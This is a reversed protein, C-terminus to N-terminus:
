PTPGLFFHVTLFHTIGLVLSHAVQLYLDRNVGANNQFGGFKVPEAMGSTLAFKWQSFEFRIRPEDRAWTWKVHSQPDNEQGESFVITVELTDTADIPVDIVAEIGNALMVSTQYIQTLSGVKIAM